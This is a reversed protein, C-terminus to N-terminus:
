MMQGQLELYLHILDLLPRLVSYLFSIRGVFGMTGVVVVVAVPSWAVWKLPCCPRRFSAALSSYGGDSEAAVVLGGRAITM